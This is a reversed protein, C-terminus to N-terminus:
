DAESDYTAKDYKPPVSANNAPLHIWRCVAAEKTPKFRGPLTVISNFSRDGYILESVTEITFFIREGRPRDENDYIDNEVVCVQADFGHCALQQAGPSPGPRESDERWKPQTPIAEKASFTPKDEGSDTKPVKESGALGGEAEKGSGARPLPYFGAM